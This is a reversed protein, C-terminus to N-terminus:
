EGVILEELTRKPVHHHGEADRYYAVSGNAGPDELTIAEAPYGLALLLAIQYREPDLGLVEMLAPRDLNGIMIGGFGAEVAGLLMTQAVIGVDKDFRATNPGIKLDYLIAIYGTPREGEAPGPYDKLLRAWATHPFIKACLAPDATLRYKLPQLNVSAPCFRALKVLEVLQERRLPRDEHFSRYSRNQRVLDYLM